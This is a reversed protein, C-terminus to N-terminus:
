ICVIIYHYLIKATIQDNVLILCIDSIEIKTLIQLLHKLKSSVNNCLSHVGNNRSNEEMSELLLKRIIILESLVMSLLAFERSTNSYM